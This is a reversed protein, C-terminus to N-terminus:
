INMTYRTSHATEIRTNNFNLLNNVSFVFSESVSIQKM